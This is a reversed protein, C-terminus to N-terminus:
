TNLNRENIIGYAMEELLGILENGEPGLKKLLYRVEENNYGHKRAPRFVQEMVESLALRYSWGALAEEFDEREEPLNFELVAKPM